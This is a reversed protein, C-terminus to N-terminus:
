SLLWALVGIVILIAVIAAVFIAASAATKSDDLVDQPAESGHVGIVAACMECVNTGPPQEAGCNPCQQNATQSM